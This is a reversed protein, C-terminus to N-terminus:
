DRRIYQAQGKGSCIVFAHCDGYSLLQWSNSARQGPRMIVPSQVRTADRDRVYPILREADPTYRRYHYSLYETCVFVADMTGGPQDHHIM